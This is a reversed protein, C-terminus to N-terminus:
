KVMVKAIDDGINVIYVGPTLSGNKATVNQGITNYITFDTDASITGGTVTINADALTELIATEEEYGNTTFVGSYSELDNGKKDMAIMQYNYKSAADLGTVTFQFGVEAARNGFDISTLQGNENFLLTCFVEGDKSIELEYTKAGDTSPWTVIANNDEDVEIEVNEPAEVEEASICKIYKFNGFVDDLDYDEYVDCPVYLYANYHAFSSQYAMPVESSFMTIKKLNKCYSFVNERIGKIFGPIEIESVNTNGTYAIIEDNYSVLFDGIPCGYITIYNPNCHFFEFSLGSCNYVVELSGCKQFAYESIEEISSPIVVTLLSTCNAFTLSGISTVGNPIEISILRSCDLFAYYGISTVSNPIKISTLSSCGEFARDGISAVSNPITISTLSSCGGFLGDEITTISNSLEISTLNICDRFASSGISIVSNPIKISTLSSCGAFAGEGGGAGIHTVSNPINISKLNSCNLFAAGGIYTISNPIEIATLSTCDKFASFQIETVSNPITISALSNCDSFAYFDIVNVNNPINYSTGTKAAPYKILRSKDMSFLVGDISIYSINDSSVFFEELASCGQFADGGVYWVNEPITISTLGSCGAFTLSGIYNVTNPIAVSTLRDCDEFARYGLSTVRYIESNCTITEPIIISGSYKNVGYTVEVTKSEEDLNYYIGDIEVDHAWVAAISLMLASFLLLIRKM